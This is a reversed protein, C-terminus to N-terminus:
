WGVVARALGANGGHKLNPVGSGESDEDRWLSSDGIAFVKGLGSPGVAAVVPAKSTALVAYAKSTSTLIARAGASLDLDSAAYLTIPQDGVVRGLSGPTPKGTAVALDESEVTKITGGTFAIDAIGALENLGALDQDPYGGWEGCLVLRGGSRVWGAIAGREASPIAGPAVMVLVDLRSLATGPYPLVTAGTDSFTARLGSLQKSSWRADVALRDARPAPSLAIAAEADAKAEWRAVAFGPKAASLKEAYVALAFRGAEDTLTSVQGDSVVAGPLPDGGPDVIRGSATFLPQPPGLLGCGALFVAAVVPARRACWAARSPSRPHTPDALLPATLEAPTM